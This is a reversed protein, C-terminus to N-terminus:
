KIDPVQPLPTLLTKETYRPIPYDLSNTVKDTRINMGTQKHLLYKQKDTIYTYPKTDSNIPRPVINVDM